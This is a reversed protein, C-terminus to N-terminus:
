ARDDGLEAEARVQGLVRDIREIDAVLVVAGEVARAVVRDMEVLLRQRGDIREPRDREVVL